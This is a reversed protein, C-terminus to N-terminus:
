QGRGGRESTPGDAALGHTWTRPVVVRLMEPMHYFVVGLLGSLLMAVFMLDTELRYAGNLILYGLGRDAGTMEAVIAGVVSLGASIKLAAVIAPTSAPLLLRKLLTHYTAHFLRFLELYEQEVASFAQLSNVVIPFFCIIAAMAIKSTLGTGLWVGLLPAFAVIPVAQFSILVPITLRQLRVFRYLLIALGIGLSNGVLFGLIAEQMTVALHLLFRDPQGWFASFVRVPSPLLFPPPKLIAVVVAWVLLLALIASLQTGIRKGAAGVARVWHAAQRQRSLRQVYVRIADPTDFVEDVWNALIRSGSNTGIGVIEMTPNATRLSPLWTALTQADVGSGILLARLRSLTDASAHTLQSPTFVQIQGAAAIGRLLEQPIDGIVAYAASDGRRAM